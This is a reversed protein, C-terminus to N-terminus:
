CYLVQLHSHFDNCLGAQVVPMTDVPEEVYPNASSGKWNANQEWLGM